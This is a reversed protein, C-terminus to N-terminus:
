LNHGLLVLKEAPQKGFDKMQNMRQRHPDGHRTLRSNEEKEKKM